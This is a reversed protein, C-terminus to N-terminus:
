ETQIGMVDLIMQQIRTPETIAHRYRHEVTVERMTNMEQLIRPVGLMNLEKSNRIKNALESRLILSLFCLFMKVQALHDSHMRLRNCDEESKLDDFCKEVVDKNRYTDLAKLADKEFNSILVFVGVHRARYKAIAKDDFRVSLGRKETEKVVLFKEYFEDQTKESLGNERRSKYELLGNMFSIDANNKKAPNCYIHVYCRHGNYKTLVTMAAFPNDKDPHYNEASNLTTWNAEIIDNIWKRSTPVGMLFRYQNRYLDDLNEKSYFGMDMIFCLRVLDAYNLLKETQKLTSVDAICGPLYRYYVPLRSNQSYLMALNIQPLPEHDRNYGYRVYDMAKAYSSVSTIDYCLMEKESFREGWLKLFKERSEDTIKGMLRSINQSTFNMDSPIKHDKSWSECHSFAHGQHCIFYSLTLVEQWEAPFARKLTSALGTTEALKEFLLYPGVTQVKPKFDEPQEPVERKPILKGTEPDLKGLYKQRTRPAKKKKDWYSTSEYVYQIGNKTKHIAKSM